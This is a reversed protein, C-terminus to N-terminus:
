LHPFLTELDEAVATPHLCADALIAFDISVTESAGHVEVMGVIAFDDLAMILFEQAMRLCSRVAKSM